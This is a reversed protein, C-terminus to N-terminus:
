VLMNIITGKTGTKLPNNVDRREELGKKKHPALPDNAKPDTWQRAATVDAASFCLYGNVLIPYRIQSSAATSIASVSV